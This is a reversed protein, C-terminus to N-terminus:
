KPDKAFALVVAAISAAATIIATAQEPVILGYVVALGVLAAVTSTIMEKTINKFM